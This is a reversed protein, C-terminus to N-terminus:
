WTVPSCVTSLCLCPTKEKLVGYQMSCRRIYHFKCNYRRYEPLIRKMFIVFSVCVCVCVFVCGCVCLFMCVNETGKSSAAWDRVIAEEPRTILEDCLGRGACCVVNVVSLCGHGGGLGRNSEFGCIEAPSRGCVWAKSREAVPFPVCM